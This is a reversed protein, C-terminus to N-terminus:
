RDWVRLNGRKGTRKMGTIRNGNEGHIYTKEYAKKAANVAPAAQEKAWGIKDARSFKRSNAIDKFEKSLDAYKKMEEEYARAEKRNEREESQNYWDTKTYDGSSWLRETKSRPDAYWKARDMYYNATMDHWQMATKASISTRAYKDAAERYQNVLDSTMKDNIKKAGYATLAVGVAAGGIIAAKKLKAKQEDTLGKKGEEASRTSKSSTGSKTSRSGENDGDSYRSRGKATLSGDKNQFRRVGWKQGLIGHHALFEEYQYERWDNNM